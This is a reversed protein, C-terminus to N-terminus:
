DLFSGIIPGNGDAVGAKLPPLQEVPKAARRGAARHIKGYQEDMLYVPVGAQSVM